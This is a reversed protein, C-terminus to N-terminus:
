MGEGYKLERDFFRQSLKLLGDRVYCPKIVISACDYHGRLISLPGTIPVEQNGNEEYIHGYTTYCPVLM